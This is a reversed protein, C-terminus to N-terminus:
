RYRRESEQIPYENASMDRRRMLGEDDFEWQENGHTRM